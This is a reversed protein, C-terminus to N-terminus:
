AGTRAKTMKMNTTVTHCTELRPHNWPMSFPMAVGSPKMTVEFVFAFRVLSSVASCSAPDMLRFVVAFPLAVGALGLLVRLALRVGECIDVM